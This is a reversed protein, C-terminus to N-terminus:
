RSGREQPKPGQKELYAEIVRPNAIVEDRTGSIRDTRRGACLRPRLHRGPWAMQEVLLVAMGRTKLTVFADFISRVLIPALGLSPEDLILLRPDESRARGIAVMQQEGGSLLGASPAATGQGASLARVHNAAKSVDSAPGCAPFAGLELNEEVTHDPFLQRGEPVM